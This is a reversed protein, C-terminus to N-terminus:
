RSRPQAISGREIVAGEILLQQPSNEEAELQRLLLDMAQEGIERHPLSITSLNLQRAVNPDDDYGVISLDEPIRLGLRAAALLVGAAVRDNACVIGTPPQATSLIQSGLRLGDDISWGCEIVIPEVGAEATARQHGEIRRVTAARTYDDPGSLMVIDRHGADILMRTARYGGLVEDANVCSVKGDPDYANMLINTEAIFSEPPQWPHMGEAAYVLADVQRALLADVTEAGSPDEPDVGMVLLLYDDRAARATAGTVIAGGYSGTLIADSIVGITHTSSNRLSRAVRNPRYGLQKAAEKVAQQNEASILGDARGNLVLSVASRSVGALEAVDHSTVKRGM